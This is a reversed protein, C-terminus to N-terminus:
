LQWSLSSKSALAYFKSWIFASWLLPMVLRPALSELWNQDTWNLEILSVISNILIFYIFYGKLWCFRKCFYFCQVSRSDTARRQALSGIFDQSPLTSPVPQCFTCVATIQDAKSQVPLHALPHFHLSFQCLHFPGLPFVGTASECNFFFIHLASWSLSFSLAFLSWRIFSRYLRHSWIVNLMAPAAAAAEVTKAELTAIM